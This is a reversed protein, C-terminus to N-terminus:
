RLSFSPPSKPLEIFHFKVLNIISLSPFGTALSPGMSSGIGFTSFMILDKSDYDVLFINKRPVLCLRMFIIVLDPVENRSSATQHFHSIHPNNDQSSTIRPRTLMINIESKFIGPLFWASPELRLFIIRINTYCCLKIDANGESTKKLDIQRCQFNICRLTVVFSWLLYFQFASQACYKM